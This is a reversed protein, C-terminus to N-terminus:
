QRVLKKILAIQGLHYHLHEIIGAINRYWSGYKIDTFEEQLREDSLAEVLRAAEEADAFISELLQDWDQQSHIPPLQFSLEDKSDLPGGHLVRLLAAVYYSSHVTLTAISNFGHVQKLAEEWGIGALQDKYSSVTWNGGFYIERLHKAIQQTTTM